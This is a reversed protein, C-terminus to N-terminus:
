DEGLERRLLSIEERLEYVEDDLRIKHSELQYNEKLLRQNAASLESARRCVEMVATDDFIFKKRAGIYDGRILSDGSVCIMPNARVQGINGVVLKAGHAHAVNLLSSTKGWQRNDKDLIAAILNEM